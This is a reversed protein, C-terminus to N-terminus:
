LTMQSLAASLANVKYLPAGANEGLVKNAVHSIANEQIKRGNVNEKGQKQINGM